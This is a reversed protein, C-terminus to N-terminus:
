MRKLLHVLVDAESKSLIGPRESIQLLTRAEDPSIIGMQAWQTINMNDTDPPTMDIGKFNIIEIPINLEKWLGRLQDFVRRRLPELTLKEFSFLQGTLEGGGGLQGAVVIGLMRPPVGHAIPIRDRVADLLQLFDADKATTLQKFEITSDTDGIHLYLTKRANDLGRFERDFFDKVVSKQADTLPTGKSIIAHEPIASNVFFKQNFRVAADMLEILPESSIWMPLSYYGGMPCLSKIHIVQNKNFQTIIQNGNSDFTVQIFSELDKHRFMTLAPLNSLRIINGSGDRILELFGNGYCELDVVLNTFVHASGTECLDEITQAGDGTVGGGFGAEAKLQICRSHEVSLCYLTLLVNQSIPWNIANNIGFNAIGVGLRNFFDGTLLLHTSKYIEATNTEM